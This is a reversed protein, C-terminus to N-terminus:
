GGGGMLFDQIRAQIPVGGGGFFLKVRNRGSYMCVYMCVYLRCLSVYMYMCVYM